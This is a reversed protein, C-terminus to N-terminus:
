QAIALMAVTVIVVFVVGLVGLGVAIFADCGDILDTYDDELSKWKDDIM